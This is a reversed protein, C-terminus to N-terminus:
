ETELIIKRFGILNCHGSQFIETSSSSGAPCNSDQACFLVHPRQDKGADEGAVGDVGLSELTDRTRAYYVRIQEVVRRDAVQRIGPFGGACRSYSAHSSPLSCGGQRDSVDEDNVQWGSCSGKAYFQLFGKRVRRGLMKYNNRTTM